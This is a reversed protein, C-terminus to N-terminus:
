YSQFDNSGTTVQGQELISQQQVQTQDGNVTLLFSPAFTSHQTSSINRNTMYSTILLNNSGSSVPMGYYAYTYTRSNYGENGVLVLGTKNLPKYPGTLNDSVYGLMYTNDSPFGDVRQNYGKTITFLYWKGNIKVVNPREIEDTVLNATVLPKMVSKLSYDENLEIIGIAANAKIVNNRDTRALLSNKSSNFYDDNGGYYAKNFLARYEQYGNATGTNGEFVLYKRGNEEVYHPDRLCHNDGSNSMGLNSFQNFTQYTKGDGDFISKHDEIDSIKLGTSDSDVDIKATSLVQENGYGGISHHDLNGTYFLRIKNGIKYASGSWEQTLKKLLEDNSHSLDEDAFVRGASKWSELSTEGVKQYFMYLQNAGSMAFVIHYGNYEAVTGDPNQLPWSDWVDRDSASPINAINKASFEPVQFRNDNEQSPIQSYDYRTIQTTGYTRTYDVYESSLNRKYIYGAAKGYTVKFMKASQPSRTTVKRDVSIKLLPKKDSKNSSYIYSTRNTYRNLTKPKSSLKSRYVYGKRGQYNVQYMKYKTATRTSLKNNIEIKKTRKKHYKTNTYFYATKTVYYHRTNQKAQTGLPYAVYAVFFCFTLILSTKLKKM